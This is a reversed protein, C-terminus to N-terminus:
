WKEHERNHLQIVYNKKRKTAHCAQSWIIASHVENIIKSQLILTVGM